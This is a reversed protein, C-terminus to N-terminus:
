SDPKPITGLETTGLADALRAQASGPKLPQPQSPDPAWGTLFILEFSARVRTDGAPFSQRYVQAMRAFFARPVIRRDRDSMANTEGMARLDHLLTMPDSYEVTTTFGDAVPMALGARQLVAGLDRIDGTPIVRPSLGGRLEVEATSLSARLEELTQGGPLAALLLGDPSLANRCQVLQGVPDNAWHLAMAHIVLDHAYPELSLTDEDAVIHADPFAAAWIRPMGTVIAINTFSKNVDELRDKIEDIAQRHLFMADGDPDARRRHAALARRDFIKPPPTM